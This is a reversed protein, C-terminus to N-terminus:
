CVLGNLVTCPRDRVYTYNKLSANMVYAVIASYLINSNQLGQIILYRYCKDIIM